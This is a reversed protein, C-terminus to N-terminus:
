NVIIHMKAEVHSVMVTGGYVHCLYAARAAEPKVRWYYVNDSGYIM